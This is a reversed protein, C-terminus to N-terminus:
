SHTGLGNELAWVAVQARNNFGLKSMVRQVYNEATGEALVLAEAIQRNTRGMAVLSAVERERRSLRDTQETRPTPHESLQAMTEAVAQDLTLTRLQSQQATRQRSKVESQPFAGIEAVVASALRDLHAAYDVQGQASALSGVASLTFAIRRRNGIRHALSLAELLNTRAADLEGRRIQVKGVNNLAMALWHGQGLKRWIDIAEGFMREATALDGQAEFVNGLNDKFEAVRHEDEVAIALALGREFIAKAADVRAELYELFGLHSLVRAIGIRDNLEFLLAYSEDLLARSQPYRGEIFEQRGLSDLANALARRDQLGRGVAVSQELLSRCTAYDGLKEALLGGGQMARVVEPGPAARGVLPLLAALRERASVADERALWFPWLAAALRVVVDERARSTAWREVVRLNARERELRGFWAPQLPGTLQPAAQEVLGLYYAAQSARVADAEDTCALQDLAFERITELMRLRPEGDVQEERWVLSKDVLSALADLGHPLDVMGVAEAAELTCGGVFVSLRRFLARESDELLDYSWSIARLLTQQRAPLDRAGDGLLRLTSDHSADLQDPPPLRRLLARPPFLKIRAAALEIALPLGDLRTCIEAIARVDGDSATLEPAVAQAREMFLRAQEPPALSPVPQEHEWQLHLPARSTVVIKLYPCGALLRGVDAAADLVQEFNDLVLLMSRDQICDEVVELAVGRDVNLLGLARAIADIVLQSDTIPALDVFRLGDEFEDVVDNALQVAIRTKGVGPPGTLTILRVDASLLRQRALTLEHERGIIARPQLPLNHSSQLHLVSRTDELV